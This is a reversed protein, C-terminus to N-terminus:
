CMYFSTIESRNNWRTALVQIKAGINSHEFQTTRKDGNNHLYRAVDERDVSDDLGHSDTPLPNPFEMRVLRELEERDFMMVPVHLETNIGSIKRRELKKQKVNADMEYM